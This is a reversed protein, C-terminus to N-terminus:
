SIAYGLEIKSSLNNSLKTVDIKYGVLSSVISGLIDSDALLKLQNMYQNRLDDVYNPLCRFADHVCILDFPKEPLSNILKLIEERDVIAINNADIYDLIRASLFGTKNYLGWLKYVMESNEDWDMEQQNWETFLVKMVNSIVSPDYSCRRVMERVVLADISHVTNAGLGRNREVPENRYYTIDYAQDMFVLEEEHKNWVKIDVEFGDALTWGYNCWTNDWINQLVNNTIWPGPAIEEMLSNFADLEDRFVKFPEAESGYFSTMCAQKVDARKYTGKMNQNAYDTTAKYIDEREGTPIVNCLKAASEDGTLVSLLQIGSATADWSVPFQVELGRQAQRYANVAAAYMYPEEADTLQELQSENAQFWNLRAKITQKDLGYQSAVDVKLYEMGKDSLVEGNAFQLAAKHFDDGQYNCHYGVNYTRGRKDFKHTLYFKNGAELLIDKVQNMEQKFRGFYKKRTFFAQDSEKSGQEAKLSGLSSDYTFENISLPVANVKNLYDVCIDHPNYERLVMSEKPYTLYASDRNNKIQNPKCVMPIPFVSWQDFELNLITTFQQKNHDFGVLESGFLNTIYHNVWKPETNFCMMSLAAQIPLRKHFHLKALFELGFEVPVDLKDFEEEIGKVERLKSKIFSADQMVLNAEIERQLKASM